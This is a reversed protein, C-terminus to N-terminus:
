KRIAEPIFVQFLHSFKNWFWKNRNSLFHELYAANVEQLPHEPSTQCQKIMKANYM